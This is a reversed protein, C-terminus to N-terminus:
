VVGLLLGLWGMLSGIPVAFIGVAHIIWVVTADDIKVPAYTIFQYLNLCWGVVGFLFFGLVVGILEYATFGQQSHFTKM